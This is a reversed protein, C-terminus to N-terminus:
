KKTPPAERIQRIAVPSAARRSAMTAAAGLAAYLGTWLFKRLM